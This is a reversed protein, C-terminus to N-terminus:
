GRRNPRAYGRKSEILFELFRRGPETVGFEHTELAQAALRPPSGEQTQLTHYLCNKIDRIEERSFGRRKLGVLNLGLLANIRGAMAFPPIDMSFSANGSLMASEGIRCFQHVVCGGGLFSHDGVTVHGALLVANAMTVRDGVRCDHAVHSTAMLFCHSGVQTARGEETSRNVTVGERLVTADGIEVGSRIGPDFGIMQPDGGVVAFSDVQVEEGLVSRARVIAHAALRSGRGIRVGEEVIAYPGIEVDPGFEVGEAVMATSHISM